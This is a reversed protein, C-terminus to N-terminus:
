ISIPSFSAAGRSRLRGYATQLPWGLDLNRGAPGNNTRHANSQKRMCSRLLPAADAASCTLLKGVAFSTKRRHFPSECEALRIALVKATPPDPRPPATISPAEPSALRWGSGASGRVGTTERAGHGDGVM